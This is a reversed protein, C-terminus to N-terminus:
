PKIVPRVAVGGAVQVTGAINLGTYNQGMEEYRAHLAGIYRSRGATKM